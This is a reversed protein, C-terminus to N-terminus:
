SVIWARYWSECWCLGMLIIPAWQVGKVRDTGRERAGRLEDPSRAHPSSIEASQTRNLTVSKIAPDKWGRAAAAIIMRAPMSEEGDGHEDSVMLGRWRREQESKRTTAIEESEENRDGRRGLRQRGKTGIAAMQIGM